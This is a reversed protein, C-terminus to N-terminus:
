DFTVTITLTDTYTGPSVSQLAPIQGCVAISQPANSPFKGNTATFSLLNRGRAGWETGAGAAPCTGANGTNISVGTPQRVNYNLFDASVVGVMRKQGDDLAHTDANLAVSALTTAKTCKITMTSNFLTASTALVNYTTSLVTATVASCSSAVTASVGIDGTVTAAAQATNMVSAILIATLGIFLTKQHMAQERLIIKLILLLAFLKQGGGL